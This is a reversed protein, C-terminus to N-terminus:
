ARSPTTLPPGLQMAQFWGPWPLMMLALMRILLERRVVAEVTHHRRSTWMLTLAVKSGREGDPSRDRNMCYRWLQIELPPHLSHVAAGGAAEVLTMTVMWVTKMMHLGDMGVGVSVGMEMGSDMDPSTNRQRAVRGDLCAAGMMAMRTMMTTVMEM